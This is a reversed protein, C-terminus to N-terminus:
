DTSGLLSLQLFLEGLRHVREVDTVIGRGKVLHSLLDVATNGSGLGFELKTSGRDVRLHLIDFAFSHVYLELVFKEFVFRLHTHEAGARRGRALLDFGTRIDCLSLDKVSFYEIFRASLAM